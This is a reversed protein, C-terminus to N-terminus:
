CSRGLIEWVATSLYVCGSQHSCITRCGINRAPEAHEVCRAFLDRSLLGAAFALLLSVAARSPPPGLEM